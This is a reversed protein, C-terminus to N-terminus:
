LIYLMHINNDKQFGFLKAFGWPNQTLSDHIQVLCTLCIMKNLKVKM